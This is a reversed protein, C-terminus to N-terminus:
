QALFATSGASLLLASEFKKFDAAATGCARESMRTVSLRERGERM